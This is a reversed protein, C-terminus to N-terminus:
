WFFFTPTESMFYAWNLIDSQIRIWCVNGHIQYASSSNRHHTITLWSQLPILVTSKEWCSLTYITPSYKSCILIPQFSLVQLYSSLFNTIIVWMWAFSNFLTIFVFTLSYIGYDNFLIIIECWGSLSYSCLISCNEFSCVFMFISSGQCEFEFVLINKKQRSQLSDIMMIEIPLLAM